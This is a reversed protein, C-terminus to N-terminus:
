IIYKLTIFHLYGIIENYFLFLYLLIKILFLMFINIDCLNFINIFIFYYLIIIM